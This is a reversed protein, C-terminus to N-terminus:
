KYGSAETNIVFGVPGPDLAQLNITYAAKGNVDTAAVGRFNAKAIEVGISYREPGAGIVPGNFAIIVNTVPETCLSLKYEDM